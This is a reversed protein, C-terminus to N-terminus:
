FVFVVNRDLFGVFSNNVECKRFMVIWCLEMFLWYCGLLYDISCICMVVCVLEVIVYFVLVFCEM